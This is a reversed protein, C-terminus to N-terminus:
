KKLSCSECQNAWEVEVSMLNLSDNQVYSKFNKYTQFLLSSWRFSIQNSREISLFPRKATFPLLFCLFFYPHDYQLFYPLARNEYLNFFFFHNLLSSRCVHSFIKNNKNANNINITITSITNSKMYFQFANKSPITSFSLVM